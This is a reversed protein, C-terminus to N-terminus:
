LYINSSTPETPRVVRIPRFTLFGTGSYEVGWEVSVFKRVFKTRDLITRRNTHYTPLSFAVFNMSVFHQCHFIHLTRKDVMAFLREMNRTEQRRQEEPWQGDRGEAKRDKGDKVVRLYELFVMWEKGSCKM